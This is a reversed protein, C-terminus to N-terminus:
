LLRSGSVGVEPLPIFFGEFDKLMKRHAPDACIVDFAGKGVLEMFEDEEILRTDGEKVLANVMMFWTACTVESGFTDELYTRLSSALVQQNVILVKKGAFIKEPSLGGGPLASGTKKEDEARIVETFPLRDALIASAGPCVAKYPTGFTKKLEECVAVASPSAAFNCENESVARYEEIGAGHGFLIVETYGETLLAGRIRDPDKRPDTLDLPTTGFVGARGKKVPLKETSFTHILSLYAKEEGKDYLDMGNTEVTLIPLDVKKEAMKKLARYDTGIVAPVPTGIIAMFRARIDGAAETMKRVLLKDRGMIADMDRLGASFVASRATQWRPEDFGCINGTCGGADLIILLGGLEYLVSEAGSQDPAFPTLYKRLGKM